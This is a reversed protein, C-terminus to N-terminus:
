RARDEAEVPAGPKWVRPESYWRVLSTIVILLLALVFCRRVRKKDALPAPKQVPEDPRRALIRFLERWFCLAVALVLLAPVAPLLSFPFPAFFILAIFILAACTISTSLCVGQVWDNSDKPREWGAWITLAFQLMACLEAAIGLAAAFDVTEKESVVWAFYVALVPLMASLALVPVDRKLLRRGGDLMPAEM